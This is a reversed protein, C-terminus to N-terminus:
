KVAPEMAEGGGTNLTIVEDLITADGDAAGDEPEVIAGESAVAEDVLEQWGDKGLLTQEIIDATNEDYPTKGKTVAEFLEQSEMQADDAAM